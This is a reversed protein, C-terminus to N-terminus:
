YTAAVRPRGHAATAALGIAGALALAIALGGAAILMRADTAVGVWALLIGVNLGTFRLVAGRGLVARRGARVVPDGPGLAPILHSWSGVLVQLIWGIM